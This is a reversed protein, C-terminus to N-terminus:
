ITGRSFDTFVPNPSARLAKRRHLPLGARATVSGDARSRATLNAQAGTESNPEV